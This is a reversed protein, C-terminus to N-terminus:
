SQIIHGTIFTCHTEMENLNIKSKLDPKKKKQASSRGLTRVFIGSAGTDSIALSSPLLHATQLSLGFYSAMFTFSLSLYSFTSTFNHEIFCKDQLQLYNYHLVYQVMVNKKKRTHMSLFFISVQVQIGLNNFTVLCKKILSLWFHLVILRFGGKFTDDQWSFSFVKWHFNAFLNKKNTIMITVLKCM